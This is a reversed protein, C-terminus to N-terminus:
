KSIALSLRGTMRLFDTYLTDNDKENVWDSIDQRMLPSSLLDIRYECEKLCASTAENADICLFIGKLTQHRRFKVILRLDTIGPVDRIELVCLDPVLGCNLIKSLSKDSIGRCGNLSLRRLSRGCNIALEWITVDTVFTGALGVTELYPNNKVLTAVSSDSILHGKKKRGLNIRVLRKCHVGLAHIGTDTVLDCARIDLNQLQPCRQALEILLSDDFVRSGAATLSILSSTFFALPPALKPCLFFELTEICRADIVRGISELTSQKAHYLRDLKLTKPRMGSLTEKECHAFTELCNQSRFIMRESLISKTIRYFLKNVLLCSSLVGCRRGPPELPNFNNTPYRLETTSIAKGIIANRNPQTRAGAATATAISASDNFILDAYSIINRVLEPIEFIASCKQTNQPNQAIEFQSHPIYGFHSELFELRHSLTKRESFFDSLSRTPTLPSDSADSLLSNDSLEPVDGCSVSYTSPLKPMLSYIGELSKSSSDSNEEIDCIEGRTNEDRGVSDVRGPSGVNAFSTLRRIGSNINRRSRASYFFNCDFNFLRQGTLKNRKYRRSANLNPPSCSSSSHLM